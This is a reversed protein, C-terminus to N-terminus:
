TSRILRKSKAMWVGRSLGSKPPPRRSDARPLARSMQHNRSLNYGIRTIYTTYRLPSGSNFRYGATNLGDGVSTDNSQPFQQLYKLIAANPGIHLPDVAAIQVPNLIGITNDKRVYTFNGTRFSANPVIRVAGAQSADRRGEYSGFIFLKDKKVPGGM